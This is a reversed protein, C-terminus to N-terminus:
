RHSYLMSILLLILIILGTGNHGVILVTFDATLVDGSSVPTFCQFTTGNLSSDISSITVQKGNISRLPLPLDSHYYIKENIKWFPTAQLQGYVQCPIIVNETGEARKM